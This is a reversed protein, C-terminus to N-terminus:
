SLARGEVVLVGARRLQEQFKQETMDVRLRKTHGVQQYASELSLLQHTLGLAHASTIAAGDGTVLAMDETGHHVLYALAEIEGPDLKARLGPHLQGLCSAQEAPTASCKQIAGAEVEAELGLLCRLSVTTNRYSFGVM